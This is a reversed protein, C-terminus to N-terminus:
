MRESPLLSGQLRSVLMPESAHLSSNFSEKRPHVWYAEKIEQMSTFKVKQSQVIPIKGMQPWAKFKPDNVTIFFRSKTNCSESNAYAVTIDKIIPKQLYQQFPNHM